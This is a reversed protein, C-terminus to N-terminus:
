FDISGSFNTGGKYKGSVKSCEDSELPRGLASEFIRKYKKAVSNSQKKGNIYMADKSLKYSFRKGEKAYGDKVLEDYVLKNAKVEPIDLVVNAISKGLEEGFKGMAEGFAGMGEGFSGMDEGISELDDGFKDMEKELTKEWEAMEEEHQKMEEEHQKMEEEHQAMEKDLQKMEKEYQRMEREYEDEQEIQYTTTEEMLTALDDNNFLEELSIGVDENIFIDKELEEGNVTISSQDDGNVKIRIPEKSDESQIVIVTNGDRDVEKTIRSTRTSNGLLRNPPVPATPPAPPAPPAFRPASPPTPPTPLSMKNRSPPPPPAPVDKLSALEDQYKDWDNKPIPKGDIKLTNVEGNKSEIEVTKGNSFHYSYRSSNKSKTPLTDISFLNTKELLPIINALRQLLPTEYEKAKTHISENSKTDKNTSNTKKSNSKKVSTIKVPKNEIKVIESTEKEIPATSSNANVSFFLVLVTLLSTAILKEMFNSKKQPHNLVRQIRGLLQNKRGAFPMAFSPTPANALEQLRVLAKAYSLSNGNLKIAIDDCCHERETQIQWSLWWVAPHYYFLTEIISQIINVLYDNRSIHALEHALIAEVEQPSLQNIMGIPFLILPKLHGIVLPVKVLKSEALAIFKDGPLKRSLNSLTDLWVNDMIKICHNRLHQIYILGGLLRLFFVAAGMLWLTVILPLHNNFYDKFGQISTPSIAELEIGEVVGVLNATIGVAIPTSFSSQYLYLFTGVATIFISLMGFAAIKYRTNANKKRCILLLFGTIIAILTAQWLSHLVTWGFAEIFSDSFLQTIVEM